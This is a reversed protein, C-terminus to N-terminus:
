PDRPTTTFRSQLQSLLAADNPESATIIEQWGDGASEAIAASLAAIRIETRATGHVQCLSLFHLAARPSHLMVTDCSTVIDAFDAPEPLLASRYVTRTDLTMGLPISPHTRDEGALWLIRNHGAAQIKSLIADVGADGIAQVVLGSQEVARATATGVVFTPLDKLASLGDRAQRVANGSTLMLADYDGAQPMEWAVPEIGFLPVVAVEFGAAHARLATADAGPQPRIVLLKM